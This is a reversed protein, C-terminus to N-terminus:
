CQCTQININIFKKKNHNIIRTISSFSTSRTLKLLESSSGASWDSHFNPGGSAAMNPLAFSRNSLLYVSYILDFLRTKVIGKFGNIMEM